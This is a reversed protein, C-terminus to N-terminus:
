AKAIRYSRFGTSGEGTSETVVGEAAFEEPLPAPMLISKADFRGPPKVQSVDCLGLGPFHCRNRVVTNSTPPESRHSDQTQHRVEILGDSLCAVGRQFM